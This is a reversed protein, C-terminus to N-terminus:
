VSVEIKCLRRGGHTRQCAALVPSGSSCSVTMHVVIHRLM